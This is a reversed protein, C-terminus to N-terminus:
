SRWIMMVWNVRVPIDIHGIVVSTNRKDFDYDREKSM